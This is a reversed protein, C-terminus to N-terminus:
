GRRCCESGLTWRACGTRGLCCWWFKACQGMMERGQSYGSASTPRVALKSDTVWLWSGGERSLFRKPAKCFPRKEGWRRAARDKPSFLTKECSLADMDKAGRWKVNLVGQRSASWQQMTGCWVRRRALKVVREYPAGDSSAEWVIAVPRHEKMGSRCRALLWAVETRTSAGNCGKCDLTKGIRGPFRFIPDRFLKLRPPWAMRTIM